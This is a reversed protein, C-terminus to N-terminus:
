LLKLDGQSDVPHPKMGVDQHVIMKVEDYLGGLRIERLEHPM